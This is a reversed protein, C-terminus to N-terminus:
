RWNNVAETNGMTLGELYVTFKNKVRVILSKDRRDLNYQVFKVFGSLINIM